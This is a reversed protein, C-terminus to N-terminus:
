RKGRPLHPPKINPMYPCDECDDQNVSLIATLAAGVMAGIFFATIIM